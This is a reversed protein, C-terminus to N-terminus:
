AMGVFAADPRDPRTRAMAPAVRMRAWWDRLGAHPAMLAEAEAALMFYAFMPAALLDALSRRAAGFWERGDLLAGLAALCVRARPLAAAIRAEDAARGRLPAEVREVYVGWVLTRYAYADLISMVQQMRARGMPEDPALPPGEFGEDVFRMIAATEYLRFGNWEFAPIRLFPHRAAYDAPPGSPAFIDIPVLEYPVGKEELALRAARVYVSYPAGFLQAPSM